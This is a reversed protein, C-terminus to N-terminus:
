RASRQYLCEGKALFEDVTLSINRSGLSHDLRAIQPAELGSNELSITQAFFERAPRDFAICGQHMLIFRDLNEAAFDMDHTIMVVTKGERRLGDIVNSVLGQERADLGATPEDLVLVPTGMALASALAVRKRGSYGLDRPNTKVMASLEMADLAKAVMERVEEQQFGLNQPGFATEDWITQRFLQEDPNQFTYAVRRAMQAPRYQSTQWGGVTVTGSQPRLLGNLHKALTTKGSGNEGVLAVIEGPQITLSVGDLATVGGPYSYHVDEIQILVAM